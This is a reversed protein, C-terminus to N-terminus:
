SGSARRNARRILRRDAPHQFRHVNGRQLGRHPQPQGGPQLGGPRRLRPPPFPPCHSHIALRHAVGPVGAAIALGPVQQRCCVLLGPRHKGLGFHNALRVLDCRAGRQQLRQVQGPRHDGGVRQVGLALVGFAQDSLLVRVVDQGHLVVLGAQVGLQLAQGPPLDWGAEVGAFATVAAGFPASLTVATAAPIVKGCAAWAM